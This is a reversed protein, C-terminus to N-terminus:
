RRKAGELEEHPPTCYVNSSEYTEASAVEPETPADSTECTEAKAVM